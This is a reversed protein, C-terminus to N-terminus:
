HQDRARKLAALKAFAPEVGADDEDQTQSRSVCGEAHRPSIPLSLLVEDEVLAAVDLAPDAEIADPGEPDDLEEDPESGQPLVLLTNSVDVPYDLLGLCRQCQLHLRGRVRLELQPRNREDRSGRLEYEVRGEADHLLDDLRKLDAVALSGSSQEGARAFELSDIVAPASM